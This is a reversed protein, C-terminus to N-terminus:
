KKRKIKIEIDRKKGSHNIIHFEVEEEIFHTKSHIEDLEFNTTYTKKM